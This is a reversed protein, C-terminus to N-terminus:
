ARHEASELCQAYISELEAAHTTMSKPPKVHERLSDIQKPDAALESLTAALASRDNGRFLLGNIGHRVFDPIGGLEAGLVPLGCAFFEMVTQPGNDWWVSPVIGLDRGALMRPVDEYRYGGSISLGALRGDLMNLRPVIPEVDKAYISLHFRALSEPRCRELSDALMHLGKPHNHYGMFVLRIPRGADRSFPPPPTLIERNLAALETMASGIHLEHMVRENVGFAMFKRRVFDSVALVRDCRNLMAVMALRRKMYDNPARPSPPDAVPANSIPAHESDENTLQHVGADLAHVAGPDSMLSSEDISIGPLSPVRGRTVLSKIETGISRLVPLRQRWSGGSPFGAHERIYREEKNRREAGRTPADFCGACRHGNESDFCPTRGGQLLYVQPCITHYNHLSYLVKAGPWPNGPLRAADACGISFGEINHFHVIDPTLLHFFRSVQRELDPAAVEGMPDRFQYPAPAIVPSNVVEFVRVGRFEGMRRVECAGQAGRRDKPVYTNGSCLYSVDHGRRVLEVALQRCYGNVGGGVSTGDEIRAWNVLVIRM